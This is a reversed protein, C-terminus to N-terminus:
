KFPLELPGEEPMIYAFGATYEFVKRLTNEYFEKEVNICGYSIRNDLHSSTHIREIRHEKLNSTLLRHISIAADYDVWFIDQGHLDHGFELIFRGAPTIRELPSVNQLKRQSSGPISHDGHAMGLLVPTTGTLEGQGNFILLQANVKDIILYPFSQNDGTDKIWTILKKLDPSAPAQNFYVFNDITLVPKKSLNASTVPTPIKNLPAREFLTASRKSAMESVTDAQPLQTHASACENWYACLLILGLISTSRRYRYM